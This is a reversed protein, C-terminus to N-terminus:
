KAPDFTAQNPTGRKHLEKQVIGLDTLIVDNTTSADDTRFANLDDAYVIEEFGGAQIALRADPLFV